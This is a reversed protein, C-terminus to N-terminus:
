IKEDGGKREENLNKGCICRWDLKEDGWSSVSFGRGHGKFFCSIRQWIKKYLPTRVFKVTFYCPKDYIIM